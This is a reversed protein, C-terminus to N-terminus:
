DKKAIAFVSLGFPPNIFKEPWLFFKGLRDFVGVKDRPIMEIGTLTVFFFWGIAGWWNLYKTDIKRFGAEKLKNKIGAKQYRRFHGLNKDANSMLLKHAPVLLVLSGGKKLLKNMNRLAKRDDKIHELVNLCIVLDFMKNKFFYKGKEIDGYGVKVKGKFKKKLDKIYKRNQDIGYVENAKIIKTFNGIGTGVELVRGKSLHSFSRYLWRNYWKAFDMTELTQKGVLDHM